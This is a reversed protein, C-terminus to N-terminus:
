DRPSTLPVARASALSRRSFEYLLVAAASGVNLSEIAGHMPIRVWYDVRSAVGSRLGKGESGLILVRDGQLWREPVEHLETADRHQAGFVWYGERKLLDLARALNGVRAVPLWEIAGASARAMAAGLPPARRATLILGAVGAGDAARAIAGVNRPDEVGDLAVLTRPSPGAGVLDELLVEPLPGVELQVGQDNAAGGTALPAAEVVPIGAAAALGRLEEIEPGRRDARVRLSHIPRRKARLAELVPHMGDLLLRDGEGALRAKRGAKRRQAM